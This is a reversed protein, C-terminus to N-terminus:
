FPRYKLNPEQPAFRTLYRKPASILNGITACTPRFIHGQLDSLFLPHAVIRDRSAAVANMTADAEVALREASLREDNVVLDVPLEVGPLAIKFSLYPREMWRSQQAKVEDLRLKRALWERYFGISNPQVVSPLDLGETVQQRSVYLDYDNIKKGLLFDRVAGGRVIPLTFGLAEAGDFVAAFDQLLAPNQIPVARVRRRLHLNFFCSVATKPTM